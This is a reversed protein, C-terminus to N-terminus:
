KVNGLTIHFSHNGDPSRTIRSTSTLGLKVRLDQLDWSNVELWFYTEDSHIIGVYWFTIVKGQLGNWESWYRIEEDRVVSIHPAYRQRNVRCYKPILSRYYNSIEPDIEVILKYNGRDVSTVLTGTSTFLM